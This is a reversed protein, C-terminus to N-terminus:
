KSGTGSLPLNKNLNAISDALENINRTANGTADALKQAREAANQEEQLKQAKQAERQLLIKQGETLTGEFRFVDDINHNKSFKKATSEAKMDFWDKVGFIKQGQQAFWSSTGKGAAYDKMGIEKLKQALEAKSLPERSATPFYEERLDERQGTITELEKVDEATPVGKNLIEAAKDKLPKDKLEYEQDTASKSQHVASLPVIDAIIKALSSLAPVLNEAASAKIQEWSATLQASALKQAEAADKQVEGFDKTSNKVRDMEDSVALFAAKGADKDSLRCSNCVIVMIALLLLSILKNM